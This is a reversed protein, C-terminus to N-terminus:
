LMRMARYDLLFEAALLLLALFLPFQYRNTYKKELTSYLETGKHKALENRYLTDLGLTAGRGHLYVGGGAAAIERLIGENLVTKVVRGESDRLYSLNGQVDKVPILEGEPSGLGITYITIGEERAEKAAAVPDGEHNEGDTILILIKEGGAGTAFAERATNIAQGIATGGRPISYVDLADLAVGFASYDLTLPCQLFSSGAFAVLGVKDGYVTAVLDKIALKARDLRSPKIDAALMSKSTDLAFIIERGETKVEQWEYGWQPGALAFAMFVLALVRLARTRRRLKEGSFDVVREWTEEGALRALARRNRKAVIRFFIIFLLPVLLFALYGPEAFRM